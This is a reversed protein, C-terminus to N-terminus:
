TLSMLAVLGAKSLLPVSLATSAAAPTYWYTNVVLSGSPKSGVWVYVTPSCISRVTLPTCSPTSGIKSTTGAPPSGCIRAPEVVACHLVHWSGSIRCPLRRSNRRQVRQWVSCATSGFPVLMARFCIIWLIWRPTSRGDMTLPGGPACYAMKLPKEICYWTKAWFSSFPSM